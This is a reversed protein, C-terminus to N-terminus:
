PKAHQVASSLRWGRRVRAFFLVACCSLGFVVVFTLVAIQVAIGSNVVGGHAVGFEQLSVRHKAPISERDALAELYDRLGRVSSTALAVAKDRTPAQTYIRLIPVTPDAQIQLKYRDPSAVIDTASQGSGPEILARPVNATIPATAQIQSPSVGLNRAIYRKVPLSAMVNGLLDARATLSAFDVYTAHLDVIKSSPTDILLQTSAAGIELARPTFSPPLLSLRYVSSLALLLALAASIALGRKLDWLERLHSGSQM